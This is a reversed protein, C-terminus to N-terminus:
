LGDLFRGPSIVRRADFGNRLERMLALSPPPTGWVDVVARVANPADLLVLHGGLNELDRRAAQISRALRGANEAAIAGRLLGHSVTAAMGVQCEEGIAHRVAEMAKGCDSPLVGGRWPVRSMGPREAGWPFDQLAQLFGALHTIGLPRGAQAMAMETMAERQYATSEPVGAFTAALVAAGNECGPM